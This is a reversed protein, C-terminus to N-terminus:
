NKKNFIMKLTNVTKISILQDIGKLKWLNTGYTQAM